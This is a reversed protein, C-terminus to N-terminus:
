DENKEEADKDNKDDGEESSKRKFLNKLWM